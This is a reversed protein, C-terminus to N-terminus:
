ILNLYLFRLTCKLLFVLKMGYLVHFLYLYKYFHNDAHSNVTFAIASLPLCNKYLSPKIFKWPVFIQFLLPEYFHFTSINLRYFMDSHTMNITESFDRSSFSTIEAPGSYSKAGGFFLILLVFLAKQVGVGREDSKWVFNVILISFCILYEMRVTVTSPSGTNSDEVLIEFSWSRVSKSCFNRLILILFQSAM